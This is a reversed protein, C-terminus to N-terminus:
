KDLLNHIYSSLLSLQTNAKVFYLLSGTESTEVIKDRDDYNTLMVVPIDKTEPQKKLIKLTDIGNLKPMYIDLLIIDPHWQSIREIAQLGDYAVETEHGEKVLFERLVKVLSVEDDVILVKAM